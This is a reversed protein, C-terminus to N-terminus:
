KVILICINIVINRFKSLVSRGVYVENPQGPWYSFLWFFSIIWYILFLHVDYIASLRIYTIIVFILQLAYLPHISVLILYLHSITRVRFRYDDIKRCQEVWCFYKKKEINFTLWPFSIMAYYYIPMRKLPSVFLWRM